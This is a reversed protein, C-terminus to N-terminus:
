RRQFPRRYASAPGSVAGRIGRIRPRRRRPLDQASPREGCVMWLWLQASSPSFFMLELSHASLFGPADLARNWLVLDEATTYIGGAGIELSRDFYDRQRLQGDEFTYGEAMEPIVALTSAFGSHTMKLPEFIHHALYSGYSEGTLHEILWALLYYETNTYAWKTGPAFALPRDRFTRILEDPTYPNAIGKSFNELANNPIGSTHTLLEHITIARWSQPADSYYRSIPDDLSLKGADALQLIAAATFQKTLSAIEFKTQASNPVRWGEVAFGYSRELIVGGDREALINGRFHKNPTLGHVYADMWGSLSEQQCPAVACFLLLFFAGACKM